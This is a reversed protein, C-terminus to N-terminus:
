NKADNQSSKVTLFSCKRLTKCPFDVFIERLDSSRNTAFCPPYDPYEYSLSQNSSLPDVFNSGYPPTLHCFQPFLGFKKKMFM